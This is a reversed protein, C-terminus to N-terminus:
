SNMFLISDENFEYVRAPGNIQVFREISKESFEGDFEIKRDGKLIVVGSRTVNFRQFNESHETHLFQVKGYKVSATELVEKKEPSIEGFYVVNVRAQSILEDLQQPEKVKRYIKKQSNTLWKVIKSAEFPGSYSISEGDYFYLAKPLSSVGYMECLEKDEDCSVRGIRILKENLREAAEVFELNRVRCEECDKAGFYVLMHPQYRFAELYNDKNIDWVLDEKYARAATVLALIFIFM